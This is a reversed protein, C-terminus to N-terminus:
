VREAAQNQTAVSIRKIEINGDVRGVEVNNCSLITVFDVGKLRLELTKVKTTLEIEDQNIEFDSEDLVVVTECKLDQSGQQKVASHRPIERRRSEHIHKAVSADGDSHSKRELHVKKETAVTPAHHRRKEQHRKSANMRPRWDDGSHKELFPDWPEGNGDYYVNNDHIEHHCSESISMDDIDNLFEALFKDEM